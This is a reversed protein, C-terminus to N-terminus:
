LARYCIYFNGGRWDLGYIYVEEVRLRVADGRIKTILIRYIIETKIKTRYGPESVALLNGLDQMKSSCLIEM